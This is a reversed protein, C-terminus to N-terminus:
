GQGLSVLFYSLEIVMMAFIFMVVLLRRDIM